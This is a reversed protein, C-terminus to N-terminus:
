QAPPTYGTFQELLVQATWQAASAVVEQCNGGKAADECLVSGYAQQFKQAVRQILKHALDTSAFNEAGCIYGIVIGAGTFSGCSLKKGPAAGGDLCTAARFLGGHNPVMDLAEQLAAVTCRCCGGHERHLRRGLDYAKKIVAAGDETLPLRTNEDYIEFAEEPGAACADGAHMQSFGLGAGVALLFRRRASSPMGDCPTMHGDDTREKVVTHATDSIMARM